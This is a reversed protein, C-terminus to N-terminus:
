RWGEYEGVPQPRATENMGNNFDLYITRYAAPSHLSRPKGHSTLHTLTVAAFGPREIITWAANSLEDKGFAADDEQVVIVDGRQPETERENNITCVLLRAMM